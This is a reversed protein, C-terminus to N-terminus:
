NKIKELHERKLESRFEESFVFHPVIDTITDATVEEPTDVGTSRVTTRTHGLSELHVSMGMKSYKIITKFGKNFAMRAEDRNLTTDECVADLFEEYLISGRSVAEAYYKPQADKDQPNSKKVAKYLVSM